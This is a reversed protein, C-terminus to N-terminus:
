DIVGEEIMREIVNDIQNNIYDQLSEQCNVICTFGDENKVVAVGVPNVQNFEQNGITIREMNEKTFHSMIEDADGFAEVPIRINAVNSDDSVSYTTGDVLKLIKM